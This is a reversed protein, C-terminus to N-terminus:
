IGTNIASMFGQISPLEPVVIWASGYTGVAVAPNCLGAAAQLM